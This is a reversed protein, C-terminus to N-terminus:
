RLQELQFREPYDNTELWLLVDDTSNPLHREVTELFATVDLRDNGFLDRAFDFFQDKGMRARLYNFFLPVRDNLVFTDKYRSMEASAIELPPKEIPLPSNSRSRGTTRKELYREEVAALYEQYYDEGLVDALAPLHFYSPFGEIVFSWMPDAMDVPVQVYSHVLEHALLRGRDSGADFDRWDPASIGVVNSAAINGFRPMEVVYTRETTASPRYHQQYRTVLTGAVELIQRAAATSKRNPLHYAYVPGQSSVTYPRAAIQVYLLDINKARWQSVRQDGHVYEDIWEGAFV